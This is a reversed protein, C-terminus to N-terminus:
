VAIKQIFFFLLLSSSKSCLKNRLRCSLNRTKSRYLALPVPSRWFTSQFLKSLRYYSPASQVSLATSAFSSPSAFEDQNRRGIDSRRIMISPRCGSPTCSTLTTLDAVFFCCFTFFHTSNAFKSITPQISCM